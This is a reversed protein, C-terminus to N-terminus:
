AQSVQQRFDIEETSGAGEFRKMGRSYPCVFSVEGRLIIRWSIQWNEPAEVYHSLTAILPGYCNAKSM